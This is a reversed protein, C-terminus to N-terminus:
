LTDQYDLIEEKFRQSVPHKGIWIALLADFLKKGSLTGKVTNKITIRSGIGPIYEVYGVEGREMKTDFMKVLQDLQDELQRAEEADVNLQLADHMAKAIMRGSVRKALIHYTIRKYGQDKIIKDSNSSPNEMYLLGVYTNILYYYSRISAGNLTLEPREGTAPLTDPFNYGAITRSQVNLSLTALILLSFIAKM